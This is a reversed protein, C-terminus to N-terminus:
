CNEVITLIENKSKLLCRKKTDSDLKDLDEAIGLHAYLLDEKERESSQVYNRHLREAEQLGSLTANFKVVMTSQNAPEGNSVKLISQFGMETLKMHLNETSLVVGEDTTNHVIVVPPWIIIDQKLASSEASSIPECHWESSSDEPFKWDMLVCLAKHLGLHQSRLGAKKSTFAHMALSETEVFEDSDSGCVICKLSGAEGRETYMKRRTQTENMQKLFKFFASKMMQKFDRSKESPEPKARPLDDELHAGGLEHPIVDSDDQITTIRDSTRNKVWPLSRKNTPAPALRKKISPKNKRVLRQFVHLKQPLPGLRDKVDRSDSLRTKVSRRKSSAPRDNEEYISESYKPKKKSLNLLDIEDGANVQHNYIKRAGNRDTSIRIGADHESLLEDRVHKHRLRKESPEDFSEYLRGFSPDYAKPQLIDSREFRDAETRDIGYGSYEETGYNLLSSENGLMDLDQRKVRVSGSADFKDSTSQLYETPSFSYPSPYVFEDKYENEVDNIRTSMGRIKSRGFGAYLEDRQKEEPLGISLRSNSRSFMNQKEESYRDFGIPQSALGSGGRIVDSPTNLERSGSYSKFGERLIRSSYPVYDKPQSSSSAMYDSDGKLYGRSSLLDDEKKFKYIERGETKTDNKKEFPHSERDPLGGYKKETALEDRFHVYRSKDTDTNNLYRSAVSPMQSSSGNGGGFNSAPIREVGGDGLRYSRPHTMRGREYELPVPKVRDLYQSESPLGPRGSESYHNGPYYDREGGSTVKTDGVGNYHRAQSYDKLSPHDSKRPGDILRDVQFKMLSSDGGIYSGQYDISPRGVSGKDKFRGKSADEYDRGFSGRKEIISPSRSRYQRGGVVYRDKDRSDYETFRPASDREFHDSRNIRRSKDAERSYEERGRRTDPSYEGRKSPIYDRSGPSHRRPSRSGGRSSVRYRRDAM